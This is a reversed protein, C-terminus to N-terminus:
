FDALLKPEGRSLKAWFLQPFIHNKEDVALLGSAGLYSFAPITRLVLLRDLLNYADMGMAYFIGQQQTSRPWTQQLQEQVQKQSGSLEVLAGLQWPTALFRLGNLDSWKQQSRSDDLLQSTTYVPLEGAFYFDLLPKLSQAASRDGILLVADIDQRRDAVFRLKEGLIEKVRHARANAQDVHLLQRIGSAYNVSKNYRFIGVQDGRYEKWNAQFRDFLRGGRPTDPVLVAVRWHRQQAMRVALQDMAAEPSLAFQMVEDASQDVTNLVLAPMDSPRYDMLERVNNKLLPGVIRTIGADQLRQSLTKISAQNTDYVQIVPSVYGPKKKGDFYAAYFGRRVAEGQAAYPGTLPLLLAIHEVAAKKSDDVDVHKPLLVNAVHEPYDQRWQQLAKFDTGGQRMLLALRLWGLMLPDQSLAQTWQQLQKLSSRSLQQWLSVLDANDSEVQPTENILRVQLQIAKLPEGRMEYADVLLRLRQRELNADLSMVSGMRLLLSRAHTAQRQDLSQQAQLLRQEIDEVTMPVVAPSAQPASFVYGVPAGASLVISLSLLGLRFTTSNKRM